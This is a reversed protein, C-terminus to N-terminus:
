GAEASDEKIIIVCIRVRIEVVKSECYPIQPKQQNSVLAKSILFHVFFLFNKILHM